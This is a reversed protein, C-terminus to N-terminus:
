GRAMKGVFEDVARALGVLEPEAERLALGTAELRRAEAEHLRLLEEPSALPHSRKVSKRKPEDKVGPMTTTTLSTGDTFESVFEYLFEGGSSATATGYCFGQPHGYGRLITGPITAGTLDGMLRMGLAEMERDMWALDEPTVHALGAMDGRHWEGHKGKLVLPGAPPAGQARAMAQGLKQGMQALQSAFESAEDDEEGELLDKLPWHDQFTLMFLKGASMTLLARSTKGEQDRAYLSRGEAGIESGFGFDESALRAAEAALEESEAEVSDGAETAASLALARRLVSAPVPPFAADLAWVGPRVVSGRYRQRSFESDGWGVLHLETGVALDKLLIGLRELRDLEEWKAMTEEWGVRIRRGEVLPEAEAGEWAVELSAGEPLTLEVGPRTSDDAFWLLRYLRPLHLLELEVPGGELPVARLAETPGFVDQNM